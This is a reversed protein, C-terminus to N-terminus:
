RLRMTARPPRAPANPFTPRQAAHNLRGRLLVDADVTVQRRM